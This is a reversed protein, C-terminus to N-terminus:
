HEELRVLLVAQKPKICSVVYILYTTYATKLKGTRKHRKALVLLFTTFLLNFVMIINVFGKSRDNQTSKIM